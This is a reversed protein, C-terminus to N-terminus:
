HIRVEESESNILIKSKKKPHKEDDTESDNGEETEKRREDNEISETESSDNSSPILHAFNHKWAYVKFVDLHQISELPEWTDQGPFGKWCVRFFPTDYSVKRQDIWKKRRLEGYCKHNIIEEVIYVGSPLTLEDDSSSTKSMETEMNDTEDDSSDFFKM